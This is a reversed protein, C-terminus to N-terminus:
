HAHLISLVEFNIREPNDYQPLIEHLREGRSIIGFDLNKYNWYSYSINMEKLVSLLDSLWLKQSQMPVPAYVGFENCILPVNYKKGFEAAPTIDKLFRDRNWIGASELYGYKRTLGNGFDGPYTRKVQIETEKMWPACQHTFLIPEYFHFSYMVNDSQVPTLDKYTSPWNWMNSGVIIPSAPAYKRITKCLQDKIDNWQQATPAVPENLVEFFIHKESGYREAIYSWIIKTKQLYQPDIFLKQVAINAAEAFDHGPCEHLDIILTLGSNAAWNVANDLNKFRSELPKENEDFFLYSDVPIRIHNFGWTKQQKFDNEGIFTEMHTDIGPFKEPDKEKIADIQSFWGGFNLGRLREM